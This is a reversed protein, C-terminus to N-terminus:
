TLINDVWFAFLGKDIEALIIKGSDPSSPSLGFKVRMDIVRAIRQDHRFIGPLRGTRGATEKKPPPILTVIENSFLCGKVPGVQFFLLKQHDSSIPM